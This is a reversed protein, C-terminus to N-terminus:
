RCCLTFAALGFFPILAHLIEDTGCAASSLGDVLKRRPDAPAPPRSPPSRLAARKRRAPGPLRLYPDPDIRRLVCLLVVIREFPTRKDSSILLAMVIGLAALLLSGTILPWVRLACTTM